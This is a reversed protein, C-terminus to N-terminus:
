ESESNHTSPSHGSEATKKSVAARIASARLKGVKWRVARKTRGLREAIQFQMYGEAVMRHLTVIERDSWPSRHGSQIM